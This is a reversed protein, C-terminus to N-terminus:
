DDKNAVHYHYGCLGDQYQEDTTLPVDCLACNTYNLEAGCNACAGYECIFASAGCNHCDMVPMDGGDTMAIYAEVGYRDDVAAEIIKGWVSMHGCEVCELQLDPPEYNNSDKPKLLSSGCKECRLDAALEECAQHPWDVKDMDMMCLAEQEQQFRAQELIVNWTEGGLLQLPHQGLEKEIFTSMVIFADNILEKLRAESHDSKFHEVENRAGVIKGVRNWDVEIKLASFRQKIQNVNVTKKGAGVMVVTGDSLETPKSDAMILLDHSNPPSRQRLKEKFLLLIGATINRMASLVRRPDNSQFDEVGIQISAVANTLITNM